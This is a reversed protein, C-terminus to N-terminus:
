GGGVPLYLDLKDGDHLATHLAAQAGNCLVVVHQVETENLQVHHRLVDRVTAHAPVDLTVASKGFPNRLPGNIHLHIHM